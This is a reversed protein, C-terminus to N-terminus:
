CGSLAIETWALQSGDPSWAPASRASYRDPVGETLFSANEPQTAVVTRTQGGLAAGCVVVDAPVAIGGFGLEDQPTAALLPPEAIYALNNGNPSMHLPPLVNENAARCPAFPMLPEEANGSWIWLEGDMLVVLPNDASQAFLLGTALLLIFFLTITTYSKLNSKTQPRARHLRLLGVGLIILFFLRKKM